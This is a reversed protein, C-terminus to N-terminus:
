RRTNRGRGGSTDDMSPPGMPGPGGVGGGRRPGRSSTMGGESGGGGRSRPAEVPDAAEVRVVKPGSLAAPKKKELQPGAPKVVTPRTPVNPRATVKRPETPPPPASPPAAGNGPETDTSPREAARPPPAPAEPAPEPAVAPEPTPAAAPPTPTDAQPMEPEVVTPTVAPGPSEDPADTVPEAKKAAARKKATRKSPRAKAKDLDVKEATEVATAAGGEGGGSFWERITAELGISVSSMHNTIAPIGEHQCKEVIAKSKVDLEKAIEFVRKAM